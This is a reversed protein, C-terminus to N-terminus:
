TRGAAASKNVCQAVAQQVRLQAEYTKELLNITCCWQQQHEVVLDQLLANKHTLKQLTVLKEDRQLEEV